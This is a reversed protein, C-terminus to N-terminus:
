FWVASMNEEHPVSLEVLNVVKKKCVVKYRREKKTLPIFFCDKTGGM